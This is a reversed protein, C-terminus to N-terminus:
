MRGVFVNYCYLEQSINDEVLFGQRAVTVYECVQQYVPRAQQIPQVPIPIPTATAAAVVVAAATKAIVFPM